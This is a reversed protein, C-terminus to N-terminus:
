ARAEPQSRIIVVPCEAHHACQQSVSGLMLTKFGGLGRSSVVLMDAGKSEEVLTRAANHSEIAHGTADLGDLGDVLRAVLAEASRRPANLVEDAQEASSIGELGITFPEYTHVVDLTSGRESAETAAWQLAQRSGESGDVGVVIRGM